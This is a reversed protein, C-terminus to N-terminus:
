WKTIRSAINNLIFSDHDNDYNIVSVDINGGGFDILLVNKHTNKDIKYRYFLM